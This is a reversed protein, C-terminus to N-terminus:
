KRLTDINVGKEKLFSKMLTEITKKMILNNEVCFKKFEQHLDDNLLVSKQELTNM